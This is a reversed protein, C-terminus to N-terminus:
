YTVRQSVFNEEQNYCYWLGLHEDREQKVCNLNDEFGFLSELKGGTSDFFEWDNRPISFDIEENEDCRTSITTKVPVFSGKAKLEGNPYYFSWTGIRYKYEIKEIGGPGCDEFIGTKYDGVAESESGTSQAKGNHQTTGCSSLLGLFFLFITKFM